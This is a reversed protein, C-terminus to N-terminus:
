IGITIALAYGSRAPMFVARVRDHPIQDTPRKPLTLPTRIILDTVGM